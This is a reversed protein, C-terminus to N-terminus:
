ESGRLIRSLSKPKGQSPSSESYSRWICAHYTVYSSQWYSPSSSYLYMGDCMVVFKVVFVVFMMVLMVVFLVVSM